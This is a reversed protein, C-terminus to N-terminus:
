HYLYDHEPTTECCLSTKKVVFQGGCIVQQVEKLDFSHTQGGQTQFKLNPGMMEDIYM